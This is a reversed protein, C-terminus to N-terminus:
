WYISKLDILQLIKIYKKMGVLNNNIACEHTYWLQRKLKESSCKLTVSDSYLWKFATSALKQWRGQFLWYLGQCYYNILASKYIEFVIPVVKLPNCQNNVRWYKNQPACRIDTLLWGLSLKVNINEVKKKAVPM